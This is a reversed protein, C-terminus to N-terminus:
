HFINRKDKKLLIDGLKPELKGYPDQILILALKNNPLSQWKFDILRNNIVLCHDLYFFIIFPPIQIFNM